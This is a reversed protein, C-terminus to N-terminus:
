DKYIKRYSVEYPKNKYKCIEDMLEEPNCDYERLDITEERGNAFRILLLNGSLAIKEAYKLDYIVNGFRLIM